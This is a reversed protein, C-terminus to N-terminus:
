VLLRRFRYPDDLDSSSITAGVAGSSVLLIEKGLKRQAAIQGVLQEMQALDPHKRQDTLVGTGLKVVVRSVNKLFESRM